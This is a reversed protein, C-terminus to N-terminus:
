EEFEYIVVDINNEIWIEMILEEIFSWTGGAFESGFKPTHIVIHDTTQTQITRIFDVIKKMCEILAVYKIPKSNSESVVGNQAIMNVVVLHDDIKAYCNEGLQGFLGDSYLNEMRKYVEYVKPWKIRLAWAVGAGMVGIGKKDTGNNCCHPIIVIEDTQLTQPETVDGTVHNLNAM